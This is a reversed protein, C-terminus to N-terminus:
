LRAQWSRPHRRDHFIAIVEVVDGIQHYIVKYPFRKQLVRRIGMRKLVFSRRLPTAASGPWCMSWNLASNKELGRARSRM